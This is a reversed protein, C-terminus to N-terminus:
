AKESIAADPQVEVELRFARTDKLQGAAKSVSVAAICSQHRLREQWMRSFSASSAIGEITVRRDKVTIAQVMGEQPKTEALCVLLVPWHIRDKEMTTIAEMQKKMLEEGHNQQQIQQVYPYAQDTYYVREAETKQQFWAGSVASILFIMLSIILVPRFYTHLRQKEREQRIAKPILDCKM